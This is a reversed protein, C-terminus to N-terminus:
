SQSHLDIATQVAFLQPDTLDLIDDLSEAVAEPTLNPNTIGRTEFVALRMVQGGGAVLVEGNLSCSEHALFVAVPSVQEPPFDGMVGEIDEAPVDFVKSMTAADSMRTRARPAVANVLIGHKPGETALNRTLGFVGAKAGGYGTIKQHIGLMGESCTNVIRGYGAERLHPWAARVMYVTGLYHVDVMRRFHDLSLDEFLDPGSIGANNIVVDLRGFADLATQVISAAGDADAVSAYCAVAEGGAKTIEAVVDDAPTSSAGDGDVSGGLDAVVM